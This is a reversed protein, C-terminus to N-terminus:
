WKLAQLLTSAGYLHVLLNGSKIKSLCARIWSRATNWQREREGGVKMKWGKHSSYCAFFHAFTHFTAKQKVNRHLWHRTKRTPNWCCCGDIDLDRVGRIGLEAGGRGLLSQMHQIKLASIQCSKGFGVMLIFFTIFCFIKIHTECKSPTSLASHRQKNLAYYKTTM